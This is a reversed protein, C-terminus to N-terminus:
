GAFAVSKSRAIGVQSVPYADSSVEAATINRLPEVEMITLEDAAWGQQSVTRHMILM